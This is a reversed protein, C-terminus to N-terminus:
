AVQGNLEAALELPRRLPARQERAWAVFEVLGRGAGHGVAPNLVHSHWDLVFAGGAEVTRRYLSRLSELAEDFSRTGDFLARDMVTTPLCVLPLPSETERDFPRFPAAIGRRFGPRDNFGLSCDVSMGAKAHFRLTRVPDPGLSWWHHRASRIELGLADELRQRERAVQEASANAQLSFHIGVEAGADALARFERAVEPRRVDYAVDFRRAGRDFLNFSAVFFTAVGDWEGLLRQWEGWRENTENRSRAALRRTLGAARRLASPRGRRLERGLRVLSERIGFLHAFQEDVDHTLVLAPERKRIPVGAGRLLAGLSDAYRHVLPEELLHNRALWSEAAIPTGVSNQPDVQEWPATLCAYSAYLVDFGLDVETAPRPTEGPRHLVPLTAISTVAPNPDDWGDQRGAPVVVAASTGYGLTAPGGDAVPRATTGLLSLLVDLAYRAQPTDRGWAVTVESM